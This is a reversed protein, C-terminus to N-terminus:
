CNHNSEFGYRAAWTIFASNNQILDDIWQEEENEKEHYTIFESHPQFSCCRTNTDAYSWNDFFCNTTESLEQLIEFIEWKKMIYENSYPIDGDVYKELDTISTIQFSYDNKLEEVVVTVGTKYELTNIFKSLEKVVRKKSVPMSWWQNKNIIKKM